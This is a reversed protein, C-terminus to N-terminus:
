PYLRFWPGPGVWLWPRIREGPLSDPLFTFIPAKADADIFTVQWRDCDLCVRIRSPLPDWCLSVLPVTLHGRVCWLKDGCREVAWIGGEPIRSIGGKRSVSERAVGVAWYRGDGVEVRWCHRGLTFGEHGLVCKESDFREPNDPLRQRTPEWRVRKGDESLVLQPHATDPDLTVTVQRFAELSKGGAGELASPLTDTFERLTQSFGRVQEELETDTQLRGTEEDLKKLQALLLREQEELFQRLQQFEAVIKQREAQTQKQTFVPFPSTPSMFPTWPGKM